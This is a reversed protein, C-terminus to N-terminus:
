PHGERNLDFVKTLVDIEFKLRAARFNEHGLFIAFLVDIEVHLIHEYFLSSLKILESKLGWSSSCSM